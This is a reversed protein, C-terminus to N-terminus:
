TLVPLAELARVFPHARWRLAGAPVALRLAPARALLSELAVQTELRALAAGLPVEDGAGLALHPNPDRGLDLVHAAPFRAPDRNAAGVVGLVTEGAGVRVGAIEVPEGARREAAVEVPSTFRALEEVAARTLAPDDRLRECEDDHTLLALVAGAVLSATTEHADALLRLSVGVLEDDALRDGDHEVRALATLLDDRPEARREAILRRLYRVLSWLAPFQGVVDLATSAALARTAWQAFRAHDAVPVGLLDAAVTLPLPRALDAVVDMYGRPLAATLLVDVVAQVHPRLREVFRPTVARRMLTRIRAHGPAGLDPTGRALPQLLGGGPMWAVGLGAPGLAPVVAPRVAFRPDRLLARVDDYRTVLWARRGGVRTPFVPAEDRLRAYTPYPDAKFRPSALDVRSLPLLPPSLPLPLPASGTAHM